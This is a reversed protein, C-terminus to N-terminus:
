ARGKYGADEKKEEDESEIEGVSIEHLEFRAEQSYEDDSLGIMKVEITLTYSGDLPWKRAEPLDKLPISVKPYSERVKSDSIPSFRNPDFRLPKIVRMKPENNNQNM